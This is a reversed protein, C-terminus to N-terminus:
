INMIKIVTSAIIVTIAIAIEFGIVIIIQDGGHDVCRRKSQSHATNEKTKHDDSESLQLDSKCSQSFCFFVSSNTFKLIPM